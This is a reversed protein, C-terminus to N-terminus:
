MFQCSMSPWTIVHFSIDYFSITRRTLSQLPLLFSFFSRLYLIIHHIANSSRITKTSLLHLIYSYLVFVSDYMQAESTIEKLEVSDVEKEHADGLGLDQRGDGDCQHLNALTFNSKNRM